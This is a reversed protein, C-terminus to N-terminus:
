ILVLGGLSELDQQSPAGFMRLEPAWYRVAAIRRDFDDLYQSMHPQKEIKELQQLTLIARRTAPDWLLQGQKVIRIAQADITLVIPCEIEIEKMLIAMAPATPCHHTRVTVVLTSFVKRSDVDSYWYLFLGMRCLFHQMRHHMRHFVQLWRQLDTIRCAADPLAAVAILTKQHRSCLSLYFLRM